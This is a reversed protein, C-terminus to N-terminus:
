KCCKRIYLIYCLTSNARRALSISTVLDCDCTNRENCSDPKGTVTVRYMCLTLLLDGHHYRCYYLTACDDNKGSIVLLTAEQSAAYDTSFGSGEFACYIRTNNVAESANVILTLEGDGSLFTFGKEVFDPDPDHNHLLSNMGNIFWRGSCDNCNAAKCSFIGLFNVPVLLSAPSEEISLAEATFFILLLIIIM